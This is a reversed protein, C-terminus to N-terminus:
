ETELPAAPRLATSGTISGGGTYWPHNPDRPSGDEFYGDLHWTKGQREIATKQNHCTHCLSQLNKPDRKAGGRSIPTIHDAHKAPQGCQRCMPERSLQRPSIRLRWDATQYFPDQSM